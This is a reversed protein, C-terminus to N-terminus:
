RNGETPDACDDCVYLPGAPVGGITVQVIETAPASECDQCQQDDDIVGGDARVAQGVIEGARDWSEHCDDCFRCEGQDTTEYRTLDADRESTGCYYCRDADIFVDQADADDWVTAESPGWQHAETVPVLTVPKDALWQLVTERELTDGDVYGPLRHQGGYDTGRWEGDTYRVWHWGHVNGEACVGPNERLYDALDRAISDHTPQGGDTVIEPDDRSVPGGCAPCTDPAQIRDYEEEGPTGAVGSYSKELEFADCDECSFTATRTTHEFGAGDCRVDDPDVGIEELTEDDANSLTQNTKSAHGHDDRTEGERLSAKSDPGTGYYDELREPCEDVTHGTDIGCYSCM